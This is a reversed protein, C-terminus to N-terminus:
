RGCCFSVLRRRRRRRCAAKVVCVRGQAPRRPDAGSVSTVDVGRNARRLGEVAYILVSM